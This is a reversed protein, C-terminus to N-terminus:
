EKLCRIAGLDQKSGSATPSMYFSDADGDDSWLWHKCLAYSSTNSYATSSWYWASGLDSDGSTGIYYPNESQVDRYSTVSYSPFGATAWVGQPGGKPVKWGDPCPDYITKEEGWLTNDSESLWDQTSSSWNTNKVCITPNQISYSITGGVNPTVSSPWDITSAFYDYQNTDNHPFPDKRGWQYLLGCDSNISGINKNMMIGANNSYTVQKPDDNTVWIHWSWLIRGDSDKAAVVANGEHDGSQIKIVGGRLETDSIVDGISPRIDTNYSEWLVETSAVKGVNTTSNGMVTRVYIESGTKMIHCNAPKASALVTVNCSSYANGVSAMISGSGPNLATVVGEDSTSFYYSGSSWVIRDFEADAPHITATLQVTEGVHLTLSSSNLTVAAVADKSPEGYVPRILYGDERARYWGLFGYNTNSPNVMVDFTCASDSWTSSGFAKCCLASTWYIADGNMSEDSPLFISQSTYGDVNSTVRYGNVGNREELTFSCNDLLEQFEDITPIRWGEGLAVSAADDEPDLINNYDPTGHDNYGYENPVVYKSILNGDGNPYFKYNSTHFSDKTSTEGWAYYYGLEQPQSAGLNYSAWKVSLGLDVAEPTSEGPFEMEMTCKLGGWAGAEYAKSPTKECMYVAGDNSYARITVVKKSLDVPASALYILVPNAETSTETLTFDKLSIELTKSFSKGTIAMNELGFSGEQVFLDEDTTLSLKTYTGAPLGIAKIRIVTNLMQFSFRLTGSSSSTGESALFFRVGGYNSLGTQVQNSFSAPIASKDLYMDGVFPFYCSYTSGSRLSWGGGDFSAVNTGVGDTMEFFAQAGKDPCIGVSDTAEWAFLISGEGEQSLSARTEDEEGLSRIVPAEFIVREVLDREEPVTKEDFDKENLSSCAALLALALVFAFSNKM